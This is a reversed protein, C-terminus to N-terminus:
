TTQFLYRLVVTLDDRVNVFYVLGIFPYPYNFVGQEREMDERTSFVFFIQLHTSEM